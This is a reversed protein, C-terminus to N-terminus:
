RRGGRRTVAQWLVPLHRPRVSFLLKVVEDFRGQRVHQSLGEFGYELLKPASQSAFNAQADALGASLGAIRTVIAARTADDPPLPLGDDDLRYAELVLGPAESALTAVFVGSDLRKEAAVQAHFYGARCNFVGDGLSYLVLTRGIREAGQLVHPHHGLVLDAGGEACLRAIPPVRPHPYDVYMSGWHASVILVDAEARWRALDARMRAPDIPAVGPRSATAVDEPAAQTYALVVVRRGAVELRAPAYAQELDLGAGAHALGAADCAALTARLGAEGADMMHNNALSVVQVGARRLAPCLGPDHRFETSRGSRVDAATAIPFELNAFGLNARRLSAAPVALAADYGDREVRTRAAGIIGVDGLAAVTLGPTGRPELLSTM